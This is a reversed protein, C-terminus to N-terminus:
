FSSITPSAPCLMPRMRGLAAALFSVSAKVRLVSRADATTGLWLKREPGATPTPLLRLHPARDGLFRPLCALGLGASAMAVMPERGNTRVIVRARAAVTPLWDLDPIKKLEESMAILSHGECQRLFDPMGNTALYSDAAYLGFAIAGAVRQVVNQQEFRSPRLAIDAERRLLSLHRVDAALDFELDPHQALFPGLLPGLVSGILWESSTITVRGRLGADRGSAVREAALAGSEMQEAHALIMRGTRSLLQGAPSPSFLKAGLKRELATIRRGVTPQAVELSRSAASLSGARTVALFFRLDDWDLM